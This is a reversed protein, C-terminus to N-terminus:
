TSTMVKESSDVPFEESSSYRDLAMALSILYTPLFDEGDM